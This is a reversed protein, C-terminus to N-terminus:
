PLIPIINTDVEYPEQLPGTLKDLLALYINALKTLITIVVPENNM